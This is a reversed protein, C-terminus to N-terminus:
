IKIENEGRCPLLVLLHYRSVLGPHFSQVESVKTHGGPVKAALDGASTHFYLIMLPRWM